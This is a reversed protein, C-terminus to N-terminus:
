CTHYRIFRKIRDVYARETRIAYHQVWLAEPARDLLAAIPHIPCTSPGTSSTATSSSPVACAERREHNTPLSALFAMVEAGAMTALHRRDHFRIFRDIWAPYAEHTTAPFHRSRLAAAVRDLLRPPQTPM